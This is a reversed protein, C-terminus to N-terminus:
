TSLGKNTAFPQWRRTEPHADVISYAEMEDIKDSM